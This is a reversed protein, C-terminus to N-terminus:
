PVLHHGGHNRHGHPGACATVGVLISAVLVAGLIRKARKM